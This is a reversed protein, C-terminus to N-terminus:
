SLVATRTRGCGAKRETSDPAITTEEPYIGSRSRFPNATSGSGTRPITGTESRAWGTSAMRM